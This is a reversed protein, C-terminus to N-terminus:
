LQRASWVICLKNRYTQFCAKAEEGAKIKNEALVVMHHLVGDSSMVAVSWSKM